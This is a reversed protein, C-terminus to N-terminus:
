KTRGTEITVITHIAKSFIKIVADKRKLDSAPMNIKGTYLAMDIRATQTVECRCQLIAIGTVMIILWMFTAKPQLATLTVCRLAPRGCFKVVIQRSEFQFAPMRFHSTFRTMCVTLEFARGHITIGAMLLLIFMIPLIARIASGTM